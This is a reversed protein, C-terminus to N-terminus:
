PRGEAKAIAKRADGVANILRDWHEDGLLRKVDFAFGGIASVEANLSSLAELIEPAAAILRANAMRASSAGFSVVVAEVRSSVRDLPGIFFEGKREEVVWPGHTHKSM